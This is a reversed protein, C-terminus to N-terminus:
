LVPPYVRCLFYRMKLYVAGCSRTCCAKRYYIQRVTSCALRYINQVASLVRTVDLLMYFLCVSIISTQKLINGKLDSTSYICAYQMLQYIFQLYKLSYSDKPCHYLKKKQTRKFQQSVRSCIHIRIVNADKHM